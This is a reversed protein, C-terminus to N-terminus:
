LAKAAALVAQAHGPVKVKPWIQRVLGDRDILVTTREIGMYKRGYMNKEVWVGYRECVDAEADSALPFTLGHKKKFKVHSAISDKSIGIITADASNFDALADRFDCSEQTCGPTDDKPYFYVIVVRGKLAELSISSGDDTPLNFAPAPAGIDLSM